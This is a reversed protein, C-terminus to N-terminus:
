ISDGPALIGVFIEQVEDCNNGCKKEDLVDENLKMSAIDGISTRHARIRGLRTTADKTVGHILPITM